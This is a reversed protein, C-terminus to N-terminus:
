PRTLRWAWMPRKGSRPRRTHGSPRCAHALVDAPVKDLLACSCWDYPEPKAMTGSQHLLQPHVDRQHELEIVMDWVWIPLEDTM